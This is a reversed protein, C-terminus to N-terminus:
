VLIKCYCRDDYSNNGEAVGKTTFMCLPDEKLKKLLYQESDYLTRFLKPYGDTALIIESNPEIAYRILFPFYVGNGNLVPYGYVGPKNEYFFQKKLNDAISERGVDHRLLDKISLGNQIAKNLIFARAIANEKDIKKKHSHLVGNIMCSCDGYSWVEKYIDNYLIISARLQEEPVIEDFDRFYRNKLSENLADLMEYPSLNEVDSNLFELIIEKAACGSKMGDWLHVGKATVGDVVAVIHEKVIFGDECLKDNNTKGKIFKEIIQM